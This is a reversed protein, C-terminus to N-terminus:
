SVAEHAPKNWNKGTIIAVIVLLLTLIIQLTSLIPLQSAQPLPKTHLEGLRSLPPYITWAPVFRSFAKICSVCMVENVFLLGLLICNEVRSRFRGVICRGAFVLLLLVPFFVFASVFSSLMHMPVVIYTDHMNIDLTSNGLWIGPVIYFIPISVALIILTILSKPKM